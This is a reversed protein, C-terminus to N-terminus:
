CAGAPREGLVRRRFERSRLINAGEVHFGFFRDIFAGAQNLGSASAPRARLEALPTEQLHLLLEHLGPGMPQSQGSSPICRRCLLGGRAIDFGASDSASGCIVCKVLRPRYGISSLLRLLYAWLLTALSQESDAADMEHLTDVALDFLRSNPNENGTSRELSEIVASGYSIGELWSRIHPFSNLITAESVTHLTRDPRHYIVLHCHTLPELSAGFRSKTRRVGRAVSDLKGYRRSFTVAIKSSDRLNRTRLVIAETKIISAM